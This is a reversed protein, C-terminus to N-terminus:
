ADLDELNDILWGNITLWEENAEDFAPFSSDMDEDPRVLAEISFGQGEILVNRTFGKARAKDAETEITSIFM